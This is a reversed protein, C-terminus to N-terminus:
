RTLVFLKSGMWVSRFRFRFNGEINTTKEKSRKRKRRSTFSGKPSISVSPCRSRGQENVNGTCIVTDHSIYMAPYLSLYPNPNQNWVWHGYQVTCFSNGNCVGLIPNWDLDLNGIMVTCMNLVSIRRARIPIRTRIRCHLYAMFSLTFSCHFQSLSWDPPWFILWM